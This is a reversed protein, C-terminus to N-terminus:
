GTPNSCVMLSTIGGPESKWKTSLPARYPSLMFSLTGTALISILHIWEDVSRPAFPHGRTRERPVLALMREFHFGNRPSLLWQSRGPDAPRRRGLNKGTAPWFAALRANKTRKIADTGTTSVVVAPSPVVASSVPRVAPLLRGSVSSATRPSVIVDGQAAAVWLVTPLVFAKTSVLCSSDLALAPQDIHIVIRGV